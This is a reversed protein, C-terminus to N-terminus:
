MTTLLAFEWLIAERSSSWIGVASLDRARPDLADDSDRYAAALEFPEEM